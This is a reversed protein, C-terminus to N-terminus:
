NNNYKKATKLLAKLMKKAKHILTDINKTEGSVTISSKFKSKSAPLDIEFIMKIIEDKKNSEFVSKVDEWDIAKLEKISSSVYKLNTGKTERKESTALATMKEQGFAFISSLLLFLAVTKKM